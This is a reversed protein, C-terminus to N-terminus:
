VRKLRIHMM